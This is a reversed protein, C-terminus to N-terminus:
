VYFRCLDINPKDRDCAVAAARLMARSDRLLWKMDFLTRLGNVSHQLRAYVSCLIDNNNQEKLPSITQWIRIYWNGVIRIFFNMTFKILPTMIKFCIVSLNLTAQKANKTSLQSLKLLFIRHLNHWFIFCAKQLVDIMCGVPDNLLWYVTLSAIMISGHYSHLFPFFATGRNIM